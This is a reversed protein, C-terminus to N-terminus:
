TQKQNIIIMKFTRKLFQITEGTLSEASWQPTPALNSPTPHGTPPPPTCYVHRSMGQQICVEVVLHSRPQTDLKLLLRRHCHPCWYQLATLSNTVTLKFNYIPM